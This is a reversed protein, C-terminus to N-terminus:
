VSASEEAAAIAAMKPYYTTIANAIASDASGDLIMTKLSELTADPFLDNALGAILAISSQVVPASPNHLQLRYKAALQQEANLNAPDEIANLVQAAHAIIAQRVLIQFDGSDALQQQERFTLPM